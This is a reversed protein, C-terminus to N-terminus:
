RGRNLVRAKDLPDESDIISKKGLPKETHQEIRRLGREEIYTGDKVTRSHKMAPRKTKAKM